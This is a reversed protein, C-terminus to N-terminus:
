RGHFEAAVSDVTPHRCDAIARAGNREARIRTEGQDGHHVKTM